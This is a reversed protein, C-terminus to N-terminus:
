QRPRGFAGGHKARHKGACVRSCFLHAKGAADSWRKSIFAGCWDCPGNWRRYARGRTTLGEVPKRGFSPEPNDEATAPPINGSNVGNATLATHLRWHCRFCLTVGNAVDWRREPHDRFSAIHHAHLEVETANCHQCTANDRSIVARAWAGHKGRSARRRGEPRYNPHSEGEYRFGGKDACSKSCFRQRRFTTIPQGARIEFRAGCEQCSKQREGGQWRPHNAGVWHEARWAGRCAYSCFRFTSARAPIVSRAKGCQVCRVTVPM